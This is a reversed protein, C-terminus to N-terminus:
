CFSIVEILKNKFSWIAKFKNQDRSDKHTQCVHTTQLIQEKYKMIFSLVCFESFLISFTQHKRVRVDSTENKESSNKSTKEFFTKLGDRDNRIRKRMVELDIKEGSDKKLPKPTFFAKFADFAAEASSVPKTPEVSESDKADTDSQPEKEECENKENENLKTPIIEDQYRESEADPGPKEEVRKERGLFQNIQDLFGGQTKVDDQKDTFISKKGDQPSTKNLATSDSRAVGKKLGRLGSFLAPLQNPKEGPSFTARTLTPGPSLDSVHTASRLSINSFISTQSSGPSLDKEKEEEDKLCKVEDGDMEAEQEQGQLSKMINVIILTHKPKIQREKESEEATKRSNTENLKANVTSIHPKDLSSDDKDCDTVEKMNVSNKDINVARSKKGGPM